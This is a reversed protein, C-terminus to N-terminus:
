ETIHLHISFSPLFIVMLTSRTRSFLLRIMLLKSSYVLGPLASESEMSMSEDCAELSKKIDNDTRSDGTSGDIKVKKVSGVFTIIGLPM